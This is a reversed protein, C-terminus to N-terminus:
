LFTISNVIEDFEKEFQSPDPEKSIQLIRDKSQLYYWIQQKGQPNKITYIYFIGSTLNMQQKNLIETPVMNAEGCGGKIIEEDLTKQCLNANNITLEIQDDNPSDNRNLDTEYNTLLIINYRDDISWKIPYRFSINLDQSTHTKFQPAQTIIQQNLADPQTNKKNGILLLAIILLVVFIVIVYLLNHSKKTKRKKEM